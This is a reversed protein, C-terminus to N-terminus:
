KAPHTARRRTPPAVWELANQAFYITRLEDFAQQCTDSIRGTHLALEHDILARLFLVRWRWAARAPPSLQADARQMRALAEAARETHPLDIRGGDVEPRYGRPLNHELIDIAAMVDDVVDPSYEFAIYERATDRAPRGKDWYFQACIAKNIDEYIGESYPFGGALHDKAQDWVAQLHAPFPNAGYGGWPNCQYMSIEPFGVMPLNGPAGHWIPYDPFRDGYDDAMLYDAWDPRGAFAKALGEWEGHTFHDFYWTSLIVKGRPFAARFRRAIPEAMRLFGNAGWPACQGCTCGGQDYPWIWLYDLDIGAFAALKEDVWRLLLEQAGAKSPCLEVHYHGEPGRFYGDHGATWDARLAVPSNAYAENALLTLSAGLGIRKAAGLIARLREIMATAAPDDIGHFHHMDFWVSLANFGWLALEEVYREIEQVPAEHYFNNFHTAFYIGRVPTQPASVGRWDGPLFADPAYRSARLLKGVGYLLGRADCGAIVIEGQPGDSIRFGEASLTPDLRLQLVLDAPGSETVQAGCRQQIHRRLLGATASITQRTEAPCAAISPDLDIRITHAPM